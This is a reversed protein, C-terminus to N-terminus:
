AFAQDRTLRLFEMWVAPKTLGGQGSLGLDDLVELIASRTESGWIGDVGDGETGTSGLNKGYIYVACSQVFYTQANSSTRFRFSFNFDVHFHDHHRPYHFSLVQSFYLFLHANIGNYFVRDSPYANMMFKEDGWYFGDLDFAFGQGHAGGGDGTTGATLIISPTGKNWVDFLEEFCSNLTDKLKKKCGFSRHDGKSGYPHAPPLRDYHVPVGALHDFSTNSSSATQSTTPTPSPTTPTGAPPAAPVPGPYDCVCTFNGDSDEASTFTGNLIGCATKLKPVTSSHVKHHVLSPM